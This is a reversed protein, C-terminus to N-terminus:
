PESHWNQRRIEMGEAVREMCALRNGIGNIEVLCDFCQGILCYPARSANRTPTKRCAVIGTALLAIAVSSGRPAQCPRGEVTFNVWETARQRFTFM